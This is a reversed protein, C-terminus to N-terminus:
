PRGLTASVVNGNSLKFSYSTPETVRRPAVRRPEPQAADEPLLRYVHGQTTTFELVDGDFLRGSDGASPSSRALRCPQAWPNRLRCPEGWRSEVEVFELRGARCSVTVLFGGRTLLRFTADWHRPWAPLINIIEPQGPRPSISQILGEQLTTAICGLIEISHATKGEFESFGNPLPNSGWYYSATMAPLDDGRGIRSGMVLTSHTGPQRSGNAIAVRSDNLEGIKRVIRDLRPDRTELTWDEFTFIPWALTAGPKGGRKVDGLHGVSWVDDAMMGRGLAQSGPDRGMPYPTLHKLFERWKDRLEADVGLIEAARIALPATGRIAGLDVVGDNIGWFGEQQNLGYLHYKGDDEKRALGRYLELTDRLLPYAHTRLFSKDGSYRYRWWAQVALDSGCAVYHSVFSYRGAIGRFRHGDAFQTLVCEYQGLALAAPSLEQVTKRGLYVDQYEQAIVPPLIVPGDFPGAEMFYAGHQVGWRQRAAQRAAPLQKVYMNFYPDALETADAAYLPHHSIATTWIWYQAGWYRKDGNVSFLSGNWKAPLAGRSSSAMYYLHLTRLRAMFQAVGDESTLHVFTRSWFDSWWGVHRARLNDYADAQRTHNDLLAFAQRPLDTDPAFSAASSVFVTRKGRAAPLVLQRKRKEPVHTIPARNRWQPFIGPAINQDLDAGVTVDVKGAIGIVSQYRVTQPLFTISTNPNTWKEWGVEDVALQSSGDSSGNAQFDVLLTAAQQQNGDRGPTKAESAAIRTLAFGTVASDGDAGNAASKTFLVNATNQKVEFKFFAKGVRDPGDGTSTAVNTVTVGNVTISDWIGGGLSDHHYTTLEYTGNQLNSITMPIRARNKTLTSVSFRSALMNGIPRSKEGGEVDPEVYTAAGTPIHLAVASACHHDKETFQQVVGIMPGNRVWQYQARHDGHRVDPPRWMALEARIPQPTQRQDDIEIALIDSKAFVFCRVRVQNGSLSCEADYLSLRQLFGDGRDLAPGGVNITVRAVGGAYDTPGDRKGSANKNVAFVDCRNIQFNVSDPTTWVLTGMRGNGIPQGEVPAAAPSRYIMDAASVTSRYDVEILPSDALAAAAAGALMLALVAATVRLLRVPPSPTAISPPLM